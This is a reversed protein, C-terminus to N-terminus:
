GLGQAPVLEGAGVEHRGLVARVYSAPQRAAEATLTVSLEYGCWDTIFGRFLACIRAELRRRATLDAIAASPGPRSDGHM